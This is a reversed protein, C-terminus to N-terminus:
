KKTRILLTDVGLKRLENRKRNMVLRDTFPGLRLRYYTKGKSQISSIKMVQDHQALRKQERLAADQETFTGAQIYYPTPLEISIPVANVVVETQALGHYFSYHIKHEDEQAKPVVAAEFAPKEATKKTEEPKAVQEESQSKSAAEAIQQADGSKVGKHAFHQVVFFGGLLGVTIVGAVLWVWKMSSAPEEERKQLQSKRQYPQKATFHKQKYDRAM